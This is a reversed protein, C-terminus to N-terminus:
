AHHRGGTRTEKVTEPLPKGRAALAQELRGVITSFVKHRTWRRDTAEVVTWPGWETETRELMAEIADVYEEYHKHHQWDEKQVHWSELPDRELKRFRQAQEKKSIHLFFKIIVYGDDAITREFDVIDQFARKWLKPPVMKEIRKVLVRGYWSRDFIAMQGYNPLKIWFRWLWPLHQEMTRPGRIPYLRFGRPELHQTLANITSGKGSADWGEFVIVSPIGADWCAKELDYLRRELGPMEAEFQKKPLKKSLDIKELM